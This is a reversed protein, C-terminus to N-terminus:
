DDPGGAVVRIAAAIRDMVAALLLQNGGAPSDQPDALLPTVLWQQAPHKLAQEVVARQLSEALEGSFLLHSQVIIRRFHRGAVEAFTEALPPRAMALFCVVCEAADKPEHRIRAFEHMEATATEDQSGRGVLVLATHAAAVAPQKALAQQFRRQSLEVIAPHCGLHGAQVCALRHELGSGACADAVAQPIDRKAHGAAFLLLPAAVIRTAGRERLRRVGADIAPAQLELFAPEVPCPALRVALQRALSLFQQTGVESATGHGILLIGHTPNRTPM